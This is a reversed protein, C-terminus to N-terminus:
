RRRPPSVVHAAEAAHDPAVRKASSVIREDGARCAREDMASRIAGTCVAGRMDREAEPPQADDVDGAARLRQVVLVTGDGEDEVALDVVVPLERVIQAGPSM